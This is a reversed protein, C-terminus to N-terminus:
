LLSGILSQFEKITAKKLLTTCKTDLLTQDEPRYPDIVKIPACFGNLTSLGHKDLM